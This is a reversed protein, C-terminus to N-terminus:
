RAALASTFAAPTSGSIWKSWAPQFSPRTGDSPKSGRWYRAALGSTAAACTSGSACKRANPAGLPAQWERRGLEDGRVAEIKHGVQLVIGVDRGGIDVREPM